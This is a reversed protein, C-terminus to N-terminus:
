SLGQDIGAMAKAQATQATGRMITALLCTLFSASYPSACAELAWIVRGESVQVFRPVNYNSLAARPAAEAEKSLCASRVLLRRRKAARDQVVARRAQSGHRFLLRLTVLDQALSRLIM